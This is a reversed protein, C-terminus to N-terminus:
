NKKESETMWPVAAELEEKTKWTVACTLEILDEDPLLKITDENFEIDNWAEDTFNHSKICRAIMMITAKLWENWMAQANPYRDGIEERDITM